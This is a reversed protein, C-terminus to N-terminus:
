WSGECAAGVSILADSTNSYWDADAVVAAKLMAGPAFAETLYAINQAEEASLGSTDVLRVYEGVSEVDELWDAITEYGNGWVFEQLPDDISFNASGLGMMAITSDLVPQGILECQGGYPEASMQDMSCGSVGLLLAGSAAAVVLKKM